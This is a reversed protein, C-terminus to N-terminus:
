FSVMIQPEAFRNNFQGHEDLNESKLLLWKHWETNITENFNILNFPLKDVFLAEVDEVFNANYFDDISPNFLIKFLKNIKYQILLEKEYEALWGEPTTYTITANSGCGATPMYLQQAKFIKDWYSRTSCLQRAMKDVNCIQRLNNVDDNIQMIYERIDQHDM